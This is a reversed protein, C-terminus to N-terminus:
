LCYSGVQLAAEISADVAIQAARQQADVLNFDEEARGLVLDLCSQLVEGVELEPGEWGADDFDLSPAIAGKDKSM